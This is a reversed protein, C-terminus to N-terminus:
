SLIKLIRAFVEDASGDGDIMQLRASNAYYEPVAETKRAYEELRLQFTELNDDARRYLKGKDCAPCAAGISLGANRDEQSVHNCRNCSLRMVVRKKLIQVDVDLAIVVDLELSQQQLFRDLSEAQTRTRPYGDFIFQAGNSGVWDAILEDMLTDPLLEGRALHHDATKGLPTGLSIQERLVAGTSVAPIGCHASLRAAQTGKGSAPPGLLVFRDM